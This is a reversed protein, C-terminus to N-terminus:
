VAILLEDNLDGRTSLPRGLSGSLTAHSLYHLLSVHPHPRKKSTEQVISCGLFRVRRRARARSVFIAM